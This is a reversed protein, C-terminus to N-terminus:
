TPQIIDDAQRETGYPHVRSQVFLAASFEYKIKVSNIIHVLYELDLNFIKTTIKIRVETIKSVIDSGTM